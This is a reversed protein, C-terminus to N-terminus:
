ALQDHHSPPPNGSSAQGINQIPQINQTPQITEPADFWWQPLLQQVQPSGFRDDILEVVGTDEPTRILRGAAQIVKRIGPYLYTYAYGQGFRAQLRKALQEHLDDYPPLGLTAIFVGILADGPLDIGESFVGGLVAFGVVGREARFREIFALRAQETMSPSQAMVPMDPCHLTLEGLLQELYAFSSLYVLYNGPAARYQNAIRQSIPQLSRQRDKFRTSIDIIRPDLQDASFPSHISEWCTTTPLGLLDQYYRAPNLTASFLVSAQAALFREALFDTPILNQISLSAAFSRHKRKGEVPKVELTCLSHDGFLEMLKMFRLTDFLLSQLEPIVPHETMYDTLDGVLRQLAGNLETPVASLHQKLPQQNPLATTEVHHDIVKSWARQVARFTNSLAKPATRAVVRFQWQRLEGSYMGRARDILNHGEDILPVVRWDNQRTLGYLIAHQDFYHNVDGVVVDSWRAMEQALYYPCISHELALTRLRTRDLWRADAAAQRAAPLRDFFGAALPCDDGHCARDPHECAKDRATLELVRLPLIEDEGAFTEDEGASPRLKQLSDLILQRGTTRATLLFLKDLQRRPMAMLAPYTVGLTKGIGTPAELLLARETSIGKYVTESLSRQHPRFSSFPFALIMLAQDRQQRHESEQQHWDRYRLCLAMLCEHLPGREWTEEFPSEQDKAIDYYVLRLTVSALDDRQCLLAGYVKLQAWHLRRQGPGVRALDGRHTKIEELLPPSQGPLYGDARGRLQIGLCEGELVYEPQYGQPRRSQLTKHGKIGEASTPSPTYRHELGGERAAFECLSQVAVKM